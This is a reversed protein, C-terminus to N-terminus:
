QNKKSDFDLCNNDEISDPNLSQRSKETLMFPDRKAEDPDLRNEYIQYVVDMSGETYYLRKIGEYAQEKYNKKEANAICFGIPENNFWFLWLLFNAIAVVVPVFAVILWSKSDPNDDSVAIGLNLIITIGITVGFNVAFGHTGVKDEPLTEALYLACGTLMVAASAGYVIKGAFILWFNFIFQM